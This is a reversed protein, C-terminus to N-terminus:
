KPSAFAAVQAVMTAFIAVVLILGVTLPALAASTKAFALVGITVVLKVLYDTALWGIKIESGSTVRTSFFWTLATFVLGGLGGLLASAGRSEDVSAPGWLAFGVSVVIVLVAVLMLYVRLKKLAKRVRLTHEM